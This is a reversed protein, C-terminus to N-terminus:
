RRTGSYRRARQAAAYEAVEASEPTPVQPYCEPAPRRARRSAARRRWAAAEERQAQMRQRVIEQMVTPYM